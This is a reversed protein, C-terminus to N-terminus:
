GGCQKIQLVGIREAFALARYVNKLEFFERFDDKGWWRRLKDHHKTSKWSRNLWREALFYFIEIKYGDSKHRAVTQVTEWHCELTRQDILCFIPLDPADALMKHVQVNADGKYILFELPRNANVAKLRELLKVQETDLDCGAFHSFTLGNQRREIVRKISWDDGYREDQPGAFLDLYAGSRTVILFRHLYEAILVSKQETWLHGTLEQTAKKKKKPPQAPVPGFLDHEPSM